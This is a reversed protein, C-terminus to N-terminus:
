SIEIQDYRERIKNGWKSIEKESFKATYDYKLNRADVDYGTVQMVWTIVRDMDSDDLDGQRKLAILMHKLESTKLRNNEVLIKNCLLDIIVAEQQPTLGKLPSKIREDSPIIRKKQIEEERIEQLAEKIDNKRQEKEEDLNKEKQSMTRVLHIAVLVFTCVLALILITAVVGNYIPLVAPYWDCHEYGIGFHGNLFLRILKDLAFLAFVCWLSLAIKKILKYVGDIKKQREPAM